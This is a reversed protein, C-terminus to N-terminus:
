VGRRANPRGGLWTTAASGCGGSCRRGTTAPGPRTWRAATVAASRWHTPTCTRWSPGRLRPAATPTASSRRRPRLPAPRIPTNLPAPRLSIPLPPPAPAGTLATRICAGTTTLCLRVHCCCSVIATQHSCTDPADCRSSCRCGSILGLPIPYRPEDAPRGVKLDDPSAANRMRQAAGDGVVVAVQWSRSFPGAPDCKHTHTHARTCTRTCIHTRARARLCLPRGAKFM